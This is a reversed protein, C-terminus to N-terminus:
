AALMLIMAPITDIFSSLKAATPSLDVFFQVLPGLIGTVFLFALGILLSLM